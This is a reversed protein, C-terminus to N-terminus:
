VTFIYLYLLRNTQQKHWVQLGSILVCFPIGGERLCIMPAMILKSLLIIIPIYWLKLIKNMGKNMMLIVTSIKLLMLMLMTLTLFPCAIVDEVNHLQVLIFFIFNNSFTLKCFIFHVNLSFPLVPCLFITGVDWKELVNLSITIGDFFFSIDTVFDHFQGFYYRKKLVTRRLFILTTPMYGNMQSKLTCLVIDM